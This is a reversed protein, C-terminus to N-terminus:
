ARLKEGKPDYFAGHVVEGRVGDAEVRSPFVGDQARIWGLAVGRGLAPSFRSSTLHGAHRGDLILAAGEFPACGKDFLISVLRQHASTTAIRRLAAQGVFWPKEIKVAWDLGLKGPTSDFDTDQGILIHGKELRLLKLTDLGHPKVDLDRGAELLADWLHTGRSRPHHLEISLEGVFGVRLARCRVGAVVIEKMRSYSLSAGDVSDTSLRSLLERARPGAVNIAGFAATQNVLHVKLKWSEIWDRLWSEVGEAGSSTFTLYYERPNVAGVLGDDIVYGAENLLLAYRLRGPTLDRVHCPYLRELFETADPGVVQYKGLTGVDMVSVGRRVAWYESEGNGYSHPRLWPGALEIKAGAAVHREHLGTRQEALYHIGAAADEMRVPRAPPRATTPGGTWGDGGNTTVYDRLHAHCLAGQCAGATAKSYRKLIQTSQFGENWGAELDGATVDECLCVFGSRCRTVPGAGAAVDGVATVPAGRPAQRLLGTRPELGLSLVIADCAFTERGGPSEIIASRVRRWGRAGAVSGGVITRVGAPVRSVLSDPVVAAAIEAGREMLTRLHELSESTEGAFVIRRGVPLGHVGTMRAAGRGLWVGPLDNGPFVPHREVAGTALVIRRPHVQHLADAAAVPVLLGEYIGIAAARELLVVDPRAALATKLREIRQRLEGPVIKEGIGHEEALVVSQGAQAADAAATLGAIGGGIVLVDPHHHVVGRRSPTTETDVHGIGAFRRVLREAIGWLAKPWILTKYPTGLPLYRALGTVLSLVDVDTSPWGIDRRIRQNERAPVCCSRVAPEGDVSVLCGACDGTLCYPARPRRYKFSRTFVRVGARWLASAISDGDKAEIRRGEFEVFTTCRTPSRTM